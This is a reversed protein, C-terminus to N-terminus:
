LKPVPELLAAVEKFAYTLLGGSPTELTLMGEPSIDTIRADFCDGSATDRYPHLQGDGRWLRRMFESHLTTRTEETDASPLRRELLAGLRRWLFDIDSAEGTLLVLSVPNPADSKFEKQNINLGIGIISHSIERGFISHEILIGCIKRNGAYIDNPWKVKAEVGQESLLDCVALATAESIAFQLRPPLASSPYWLLSCTINAGPEAEWHNGRQGRGATQSISRVMLPCDRLDGEGKESCLRALYGNTSDTQDLVLYQM